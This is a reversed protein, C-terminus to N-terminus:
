IIQLAVTAILGLFLVFVQASNTRLASNCWNGHDCLCVQKTYGGEMPQEFCGIDQSIGCFLTTNVIKGQLKFTWRACVGGGESAACAKPYCFEKLVNYGTENYFDPVTQGWCHPQVSPNVKPKRLDKTDEELEGKECEALVNDAVPSSKWSCKFCYLQGRVDSIVWM